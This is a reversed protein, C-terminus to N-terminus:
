LGYKKILRIVTNRNRPLFDAIQGIAYGEKRLYKVVNRVQKQEKKTGKIHLEKPKILDTKIWEPLVIPNPNNGHRRKKKYESSHVYKRKSVTELLSPEEQNKKTVRQLFGAMAWAPMTTSVASVEEPEQSYKEYCHKCYFAIATAPEGYGKDKLYFWYAQRRPVLLECGACVRYEERLKKRYIKNFM